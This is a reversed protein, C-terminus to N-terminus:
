KAYSHAGSVPTTLLESCDTGQHMLAAIKGEKRTVWSGAGCDTWEGCGPYTNASHTYAHYTHTLEGDFETLPMQGEFRGFVRLGPVDSLKTIGSPSKINWQLHGGRPAAGVIAPSRECPIVGAQAVEPAEPSPIELAWSGLSEKPCLLLHATASRELSLSLSSPMKGARRWSFRERASKTIPGRADACLAPGRQESLSCLPTRAWCAGEQVPINGEHM